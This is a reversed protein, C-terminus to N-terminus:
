KIIDYEKKRLKQKKKTLMYVYIKINKYNKNTKQTEYNSKVVSHRNKM